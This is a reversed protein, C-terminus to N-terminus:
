SSIITDVLCVNPFRKGFVGGVGRLKGLDAKFVKRTGGANSALPGVGRVCTWTVVVCLSLFFFM